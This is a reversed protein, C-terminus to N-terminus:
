DGSTTDCLDHLSVRWDIRRLSAFIILRKRTGVNIDESNFTISFLQHRAGTVWQSKTESHSHRILKLSRAQDPFFWMINAVLTWHTEFVAIRVETELIEFTLSPFCRFVVAPGGLNLWCMQIIIRCSSFEARVNERLYPYTKRESAEQSRRRTVYLNIIPM